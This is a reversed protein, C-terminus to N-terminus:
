TQGIKISMKKCQFFAKEPNSVWQIIKDLGTPNKPFVQPHPILRQSQLKRFKGPKMLKFNKWKWRDKSKRKKKRLIKVKLSVESTKSIFSRSLSM